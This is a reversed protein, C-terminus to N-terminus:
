RDTGGTEGTEVPSEVTGDLGSDTLYDWRPDGPGPQTDTIEDRSAHGSPEVGGIGEIGHLGSWPSIGDAPRSTTASTGRGSTGTPCAVIALHPVTPRTSHDRLFSPRGMFAVAYNRAVAGTIDGGPRRYATRSHRRPALPPVSPAKRTRSTSSLSQSQIPALARITPERPGPASSSGRSNSTGFTRPDATSRTRSSRRASNSVWKQAWADIQPESIDHDASLESQTFETKMTVM